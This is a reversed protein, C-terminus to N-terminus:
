GPPASPGKGSVTKKVPRRAALTLHERVLIKSTTLASITSHRHQCESNRRVGRLDCPTYDGATNHGAQQEKVAPFPQSPVPPRLLPFLVLHEDVREDVRVDVLAEFLAPKLCAAETAVTSFMAYAEGQSTLTCDVESPAKRLQPAHLQSRNPGQLTLTCLGSQKPGKTTVTCSVESPVM